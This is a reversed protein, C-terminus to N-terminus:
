QIDVHSHNKKYNDDSPLCFLFSLCAAYSLLIEGFLPHNWGLSIRFIVLVIFILGIAFWGFRTKRFPIKGLAWLIIIASIMAVNFCTVFLGLWGWFGHGSYDLGTLFVGSRIWSVIFIIIMVPIGVLGTRIRGESLDFFNCNICIM